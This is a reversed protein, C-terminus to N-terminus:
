AFHIGKANFASLLCLFDNIGMKAARKDSYGETTLVDEILEKM